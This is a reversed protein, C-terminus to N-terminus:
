RSLRLHKVKDATQDLTPAHKFKGTFKLGKNIEDKKAYRGKNGQVANPKTVFFAIRIEHAQQEPGDGGDKEKQNKKLVNKADNRKLTQLRTRRQRNGADGSM